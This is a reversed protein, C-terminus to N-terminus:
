TLTLDCAVSDCTGGKNDATAMASVLVPDYGPATVQLGFATGIPVTNFTSPALTNGPLPFQGLNDTTTTGVVICDPVNAPITCDTGKGQQSTLLNLTAGVIPRGTCFDKVTGTINGLDAATIAFSAVPAPESAQPKFAPLRVADYTVGPGAVFVDYATGIDPA